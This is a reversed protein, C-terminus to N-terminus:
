WVQSGFKKDRTSLHDNNLPLKTNHFQVQFESVTTATPLRNDAWTQSYKVLYLCIEFKFFNVHLFSENLELNYM